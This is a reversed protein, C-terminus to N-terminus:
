TLTESDLCENFYISLTWTRGTCLSIGKVEWQLFFMGTCNPILIHIHMNMTGVSPLIKKLHVGSEDNIQNPYSTKFIVNQFHFM